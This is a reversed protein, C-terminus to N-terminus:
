LDQSCGGVREVVLIESSNQVVALSFLILIVFVFHYNAIFIFLNTLVGSELDPKLLSYSLRWQLTQHQNKRRMKEM